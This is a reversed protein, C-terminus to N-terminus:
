YLGDGGDDMGSDEDMAGGAPPGAPQSPAPPGGPIRLMSGCNPCKATIHRPRVAARAPSGGGPVVNAAPPLAAPTRAKNGGMAGDTPVIMTLAHFSRGTQRHERAM